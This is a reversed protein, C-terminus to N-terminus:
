PLVAKMQKMEDISKSASADRYGLDVRVGDCVRM